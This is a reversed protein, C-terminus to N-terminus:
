PGRVRRDNDSARSNLWLALVVQSFAFGIAVAVAFVKGDPLGGSAVASILIAAGMPLTSAARRARNETVDLADVFRERAQRRPVGRDGAELYGMTAFMGAVTVALILAATWFDDVTADVVLLVVLAAYAPIADRLALFQFADSRGGSMHDPGSM